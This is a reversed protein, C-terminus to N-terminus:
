TTKGTYHPNIYFIAVFLLKYRSLICMYKSRYLEVIMYFRFPIKYESTEKKQPVFGFLYPKLTGLERTIILPVWAAIYWNSIHSFSDKELKRLTGKQRQVLKNAGFPPNFHPM